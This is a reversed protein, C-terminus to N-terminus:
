AKHGVRFHHLSHQIRSTISANRVRFNDYDDENNRQASMEYILGFYSQKFDM